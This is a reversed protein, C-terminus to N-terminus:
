IVDDSAGRRRRRHHIEPQERYADQLRLRMEAHNLRNVTARDEAFSWMSERAEQSLGDDRSAEVVLGLLMFNLATSYTPEESVGSEILIAWTKRVYWELEADLVVTKKVTARREM